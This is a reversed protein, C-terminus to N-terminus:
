APVSAHSHIAAKKVPVSNITLRVTEAASM